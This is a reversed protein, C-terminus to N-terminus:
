LSLQTFAPARCFGLFGLDVTSLLFSASYSSNTYVEPIQSLLIGYELGAQAIHQPGTKKKSAM